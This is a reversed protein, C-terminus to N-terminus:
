TELLMAAVRGGSSTSMCARQIACISSCSSLNARMSHINNTDNTSVSTTPHHHASTVIQGHSTLTIWPEAVDVNYFEGAPWQLVQDKRTSALFFLSGQDEGGNSREKRRQGGEPVHGTPQVVQVLLVDFGVIQRSTGKIKM